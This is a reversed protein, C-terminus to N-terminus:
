LHYGHKKCWAKKAATGEKRSDAYKALGDTSAGYSPTALPVLVTVPLDMEEVILPHAKERLLKEHEWFSLAASLIPLGILLGHLRM